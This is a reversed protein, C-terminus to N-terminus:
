SNYTTTDQQLVGREESKSELLQRREVREYVPTEETQCGM